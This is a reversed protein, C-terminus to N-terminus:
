GPNMGPIPTATGAVVRLGFLAGHAVPRRLIDDERAGMAHAWLVRMVGGHAIILVRAGPAQTVLDRWFARLRGVFATMPEGGPPTLRYPDRWFAHLAAPATRALEATPLGEWDGFDIERLRADIVLPIGAHEALDGAFAACRLRPSSLLADVPLVRRASAAMQARGTETLPDDLRGRLREGGTTEGHRLLFIDVAGSRNRIPV